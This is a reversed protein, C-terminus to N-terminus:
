GASVCADHDGIAALLRRLVEAKLLPMDCAVIVNLDTHSAALGAAM